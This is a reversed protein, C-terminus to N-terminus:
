KEIGRTILTTDIEDGTLWSLRWADPLTSIVNKKSTFREQIEIREEITTEIVGELKAKVQADELAERAKEPSIHSYITTSSLQKHGMYKRIMLIDMGLIDACYFGYHHRLSHGRLGDLNIGYKKELRKCALDMQKRLSKLTLPEGSSNVFYYPHHHYNGRTEQMYKTHLYLLYKEVEESVFWILSTEKAVDDFKIGKWGVKNPSKGMNVRPKIGYMSKLFDSRTGSCKKNLKNIWSMPSTIPHALKIELRGNHPIFDNVLLHLIECQRRGGYGLILFAIKDRINKTEDILLPLYESPFYKVSRAGVRSRRYGRKNVNSNGNNNSANRKINFLLSNKLHGSYEYATALHETLIKDENPLNRRINMDDLVFRCFHQTAKKCYSYNQTSSPKWNLVSGTDYASLFDELLQSINNINHLNRKAVLVYYDFLLRIYYVDKTITAYSAHGERQLYRVYKAVVPSIHPANPDIISMLFPATESDSADIGIHVVTHVSNM